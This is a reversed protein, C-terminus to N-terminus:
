PLSLKWTLNPQRLAKDLCTKFVEMSPPGDRLLRDWHKVDSGTFLQKREHLPLKRWQWKHGSDGARSSNVEWSLRGKDGRSSRCGAGQLAKERMEQCFQGEPM